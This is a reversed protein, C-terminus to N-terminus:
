EDGSNMPHPIRDIFPNRLEDQITRLIDRRCSHLYFHNGPFYYSHFQGQTQKGWERIEHENVHPDDRGSLAYIPFAFPPEERYLYTECLSFDARLIPLLIEVLEENEWIEEPTGQFRQVEHVFERNPLPHLLPKTSRLHPARRGSVFLALPLRMGKRRLERALEFCLLAGMSHGFFAFPRDLFPNLNWALDQILPQLQHYPDERLRNERGPLQIPVVHIESPVDVVWQRYVSAGGGAYPFCFLCLSSPSSYSLLSHIDAEFLYSHHDM